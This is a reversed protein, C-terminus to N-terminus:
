STPGHRGIRRRRASMRVILGPDFGQAWLCASGAPRQNEAGQSFFLGRGRFVTEFSLLYATSPRRWPLPIGDRYGTRAPRRVNWLQPRSVGTAWFLLVARRATSAPRGGKKCTGGSIHRKLYGTRRRGRRFCVAFTSQRCLRDPRPRSRPRGTKRTKEALPAAQGSNEASSRFVSLGGRWPSGSLRSGLM